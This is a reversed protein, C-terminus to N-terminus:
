IHILSLDVSAQTPEAITARIEEVSTVIESYESFRVDGDTM